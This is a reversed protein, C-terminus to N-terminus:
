GVRGPLRRSRGAISSRYLEITADAIVDLTYKARFRRGGAAAMEAAVAPEDLLRVIERAMSDPSDLPCLAATRERNGALERVPQIDTAVTPVEIAMAEILAGPSGEARSPLVFVDAAAMLDPVDSRYGLFDTQSGIGSEAAINHLTPTAPGPRGAIVLRATPFAAAVDGFARVLVDLGKLHFHRAAALVIPADDTIGLETRVRRRREPSRRGLKRPDRGRPIVVIEDRPIRLRPAMADASAASVAHFRTVLRATAVDTLQAARVKWARYEPNSVHEPGYSETVLSSIVPIRLLWGSARGTIDAEFLTTHVLDPRLSRTLRLSRALTAARGGRGALSHLQAGATRLDEQVGPRDVTFAVHMEIDRETLFPTLTALSQEAGGVALSDIVTLVRIPQSPSM